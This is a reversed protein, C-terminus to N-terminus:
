YDEPKLRPRASRYCRFGLGPKALSRIMSLNARPDRSKSSEVSKGEVITEDGGKIVRYQDAGRGRVPILNLRPNELENHPITSTWEAVNSCLGRVSPNSPLVDWPPEGVPGFKQLGSTQMDEVSRDGWPFRNTWGQTAAFEYEEASPLRKGVLEAFHVADDYSVKNIAFGRPIREQWPLSQHSGPVVITDLDDVRFETVDVYFSGAKRGNRRQGSSDNELNNVLTMGATVNSSPINVVPLAMMGNESRFFNRHQYNVNSEAGTADEGHPVHRYAEMFREDDLAAVVLYDGPLLDETVPSLSRPRILKSGVPEGTREDLPVFVVTAGPPNTELTVAQIGLLERNKRRLNQALAMAGVTLSFLVLVVAAAQHRRLWRGTNRVWGSRRALVPEGRLFRRLDVAMEQATPYRRGPQKEMAKLCITELGRPISRDGKRLPAPEAEIVARVVTAQDGEFPPRGSLLEYLVVGLAYVDSRADVERGAGRAQEPSMYAPTGLVQGDLTLERADVALKALGFDAIHPAGAADIMINAPKLDRHVVGVRHAYDLAEALTACLEAAARPSYCDGKLRSRLNEGDIFDAAIYASERERGAELVGVINPHRLRAAARAERLFRHLEEEGLAQSRPIKLAVLRQLRVDRAKWVDGAAGSGLKEILEFRDFRAPAATRAAGTQDAERVTSEFSSKFAVEEIESAFRPYASRYLEMSLSDGVRRRYDLDLALLESFLLGQDAAEALSVFAGLEPREGRRWASEFLDCIADVRNDSSLNGHMTGLM